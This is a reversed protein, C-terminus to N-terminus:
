IIAVSNGSEDLWVPKQDGVVLEKGSSLQIAGNDFGTVPDANLLDSVHEALQEATVKSVATDLRSALEDIWTKFLDLM